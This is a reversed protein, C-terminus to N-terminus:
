PKSGTSINSQIKVVPQGDISIDWGMHGAKNVYSKSALLGKKQIPSEFIIADDSIKLKDGAVEIRWSGKGDIEASKIQKDEVLIQIQEPAKLNYDFTVINSLVDGDPGLTPGMTGLHVTATPKDKCSALLFAAFIITITRITMQQLVNSTRGGACKFLFHFSNELSIAPQHAV